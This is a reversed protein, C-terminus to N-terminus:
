IYYLQFASDRKQEKMEEVELKRKAPLIKKNLGEL